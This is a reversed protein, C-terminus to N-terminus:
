RYTIMKRDGCSELHPHANFYGVSMRNGARTSYLLQSMSSNVVSSNLAAMQSPDMKMLEAILCSIAGGSSFVFCSRADAASAQTIAEDLAAKVRRSFVPWAEKYDADHEGSMWRRFSDVFIEQFRKQPRSAQSLERAMADPSALQPYACAIMDEHDYENFRADEIWNTELCAPEDFEALCARATQAHRQLAGVVVQDPTIDCRKLWQGLMQSQQEGRSSLQDYNAAGFSAQGHRILYINAM